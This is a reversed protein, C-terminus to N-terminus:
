KRVYAETGLRLTHPSRSGQQSYEPTHTIVLLTLDTAGAKACALFAEFKHIADSLVESIDAQIFSTHEKCSLDFEVLKGPEYLRTSIRM